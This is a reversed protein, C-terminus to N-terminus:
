ILVPAMPLVEPGHKGLRFIYERPSSQAGFFTVPKMGSSHLELDSVGLISIMLGTNTFLFMKKASKAIFVEKKKKKKPTVLFEFFKQRM